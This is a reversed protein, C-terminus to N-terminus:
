ALYWSSIQQSCSNWLRGPSGLTGGGHPGLFFLYLHQCLPNDNTSTALDQSPHMNAADDGDSVANM